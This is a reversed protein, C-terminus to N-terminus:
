PSSLLEGPSSLLSIYPSPKGSPAPVYSPILNAFYVDAHQEIWDRCLSRHNTDYINAGQQRAFAYYHVNLRNLFFTKKQFRRYKRNYKWADTLRRQPYTDYQIGWRDFHRNWMGGPTQNHLIKGRLSDVVLGWHMYHLKPSRSRGAKRLQAQVFMDGPLSRDYRNMDVVINSCFSKEYVQRGWYGSRRHNIKNFEYLMDTLLKKATQKRVHPTWRSFNQLVTRVGPRREGGSRYDYYLRYFAETSWYNVNGWTPTQFGQGWAGYFHSLADKQACMAFSMCNSVFGQELYCQGTQKQYKSRAADKYWRMLYGPIRYKRRRDFALYGRYRSPNAGYNISFLRQSKRYMACEPASSNRNCLYRLYYARQLFYDGWRLVHQGYRSFMDVLNERRSSRNISPVHGQTPPTQSLSDTPSSPDANTTGETQDQEHPWRLAHSRRKKQAKKFSMADMGASRHEQSVTSHNSKGTRQPSTHICAATSGVLVCALTVKGLHRWYPVTNPKM